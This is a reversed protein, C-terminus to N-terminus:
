KNKEKTYNIAYIYPCPRHLNMYGVRVHHFQLMTRTAHLKITHFPLRPMAQLTAAKHGLPRPELRPFVRKCFHVTLSSVIPGQPWNMGCVGHMSPAKICREPFYLLKTTNHKHCWIISKCTLTFYYQLKYMSFYMCMSKRIIIILRLTELESWWLWNEFTGLAWMMLLLTLSHNTVSSNAEAWIIDACCNIINDTPNRIPKTIWLYSNSKRWCMFSVCVSLKTAIKQIAKNKSPALSSTTSDSPFIASRRREAM